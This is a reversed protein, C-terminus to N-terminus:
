CLFAMISGSQLQLIKLKLVAKAVCQSGIGLYGAGLSFLGWADFVKLAFLVFCFVGLFIYYKSIFYVLGSCHCSFANDSLIM